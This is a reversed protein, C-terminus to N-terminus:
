WFEEGGQLHITHREFGQVIMFIALSGFVLFTGWWPLAVDDTQGAYAVITVTATLINLIGIMWRKTSAALAFLMMAVFFTWDSPSFPKGAMAAFLPALWPVVLVLVLAGVFHDYKSKLLNHM